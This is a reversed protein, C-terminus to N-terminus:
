GRATGGMMGAVQGVASGATIYWPQYVPRTPCDILSQNPVNLSRRGVAEEV